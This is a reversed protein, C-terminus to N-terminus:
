RQLEQQEDPKDYGKQRLFEDELAQGDLGEACLKAYLDLPVTGFLELSKKAMRILRLKYRM